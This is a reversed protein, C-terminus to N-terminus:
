EMVDILIGRVAFRMDRRTDNVCTSLTIIQSDENFEINKQFYSREKMEYLFGVYDEGDRFETRIYGSSPDEENVSFIEYYYIADATTLEIIGNRFNSENREYSTILPQFMTNTLMNHGYIILHKNAMIDRDNRSDVFIAGSSSFKKYFNHTLYFVDDYTQVVPYDIRTFSVKIWCYYDPNIDKMNKIRDIRDGDWFVTAEKKFDAEVINREISQKQLTLIDEIPSVGRTKKLYHAHQLNSEGAWIDRLGDYDQAAKVYSYVIGAINYAAFAFISLSLLLAFYRVFDFSPKKENRATENLTIENATMGSLSAFFVNKETEENTKNKNAGNKLTNM